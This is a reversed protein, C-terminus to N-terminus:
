ACTSHAPTGAIADHAADVEVRELALLARKRELGGAYGTLSGDSGVIRHCPVVVSLPNRGVAAGVARVASPRGIRRALDGYSATRGAPVKAIARWVSQQFATGQPALALDFRARRGAFYERLQRAADRLLPDGPSERWSADPVADYKQGDFWVGAIADGRAVIRVTGLPTEIRCWRVIENM